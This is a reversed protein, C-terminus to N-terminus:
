FAKGKLFDLNEINNESLNIWLLNELQIRSFFDFFKNDWKKSKLNCGMLSKNIELGYLIKIIKESDFFKHNIYEDWKIRKNTNLKLLKQLLNNLDISTTQKLTKINIKKMKKKMLYNVLIYNM